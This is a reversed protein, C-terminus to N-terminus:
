REYHLYEQGNRSERGTLRLCAREATRISRENEPHILAHIRELELVAKGYEVVLEVAEAAYGFGTYATGLVYGLEFRNEGDREKPELGCAGLLKGDSKRFIGWMGCNYFGYVVRKYASFKEQEEALTGTMEQVFKQVEPERYIAYLVPVDEESLERLWIREGEAMVAPEGSFRSWTREVIRHDMEAFGEVVLQTRSLDQNGSNPNAFGICAMGAAEAAMTGYMSDEVVLCESPKVGLREAALLFIDPAPKPHKVVTGSVLEDFAERIGCAETNEEIEPMTSSSAVALRIGREHLGWVLEKTGPVPPYGREAVWERLIEQYEQALREPSLELHLDEVITQYMKLTTSGIFNRDYDSPLAVGNRRLTEQAAEEHMPESDVLVGDMDFIVARLM